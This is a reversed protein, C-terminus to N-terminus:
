SWATVSLTGLVPLETDSASIDSVPSTITYNKVGEVGYIISGLMARTVGKGLLSGDFFATVAAAM